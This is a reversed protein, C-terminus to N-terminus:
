QPTRQKDGAFWARALRGEGRVDGLPELPGVDIRSDRGACAQLVECCADVGDSPERAPRAAAHARTRPVPARRGKTNSEWRSTTGASGPDATHLEIYVTAPHTFDTGTSGRLTNLWAHATNVTSVGGAM